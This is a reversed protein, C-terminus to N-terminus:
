FSSFEYEAMKVEGGFSVEERKQSGISSFERIEEEELELDDVQTNGTSGVVVELRVKKKSRKVM